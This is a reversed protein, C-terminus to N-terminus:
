FNEKISLYKKKQMKKLNNKNKNIYKKYIGPNINLSYPYDIKNDKM